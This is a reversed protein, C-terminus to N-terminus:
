RTVGITAWLFNYSVQSSGQQSAQKERLCCQKYKKGSGCPFPDNRSAKMTAPNRIGNLLLSQRAFLRTGKRAGTLPLRSQSTCGRAFLLHRGSAKAFHRAISLFKVLLM